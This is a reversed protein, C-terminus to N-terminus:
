SPRLSRGPSLLCIQFILTKLKDKILHMMLELLLQKYIQHPYLSWKLLANDKEIWWLPNRLPASFDWM